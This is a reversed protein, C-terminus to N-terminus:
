HEVIIESYTGVRKISGNELEVVKDCVKLTSLRHAVILITMDRGMSNIADMVTRETHNDLASTAEDFVIVNAEKYFARAIGIRQRQGGSLRVGREGVPMDYQKDWSEITDAIQAVQAARRVRDADIAEPPVGFAINESVSADTLYITQPVHAIHSQWARYNSEDIQIDDIHMQGASPELLGMLIDLLTSKGSGTTGIFGVRCGKPIKLELEQLVWPTNASYRFGLGSVRIAHEFPIPEVSQHNFDKPLPQELLDLTDSLIAQGGRIYSFSAYGQQLVPLLRQAGLALAGLVPIVNTMGDSTTALSYALMAILVMGLAEIGFRPSGSIFQNSAQALRLPADANRYIQCYIPQTGDLLVDRIGGLGEHLAKIRQNEMQNICQSNRFLRPKTLSLILGYIIGFGSIVSLAVVPDISFLAVLIVFLMLTSSALLLLPFIIESVVGSSKQVIGAIVESSNRSIHRAYPQYLTRQYIEYSLDIGIGHSLRTQFWLLLLRLAGAILAAVSFALMLPILLQEEKDIKLWGIIPEAYPHNFVLEPATLIGLFPLVAGISVVEGLSAFLMLILLAVIQKRRRSTIHHWLRKM